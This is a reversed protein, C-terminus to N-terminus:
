GVIASPEPVPGALVTGKAWDLAMTVNGMNGFDCSLPVGACYGRVTFRHADTTKVQLPTTSDSNYTEVCCHNDRIRPWHRLAAPIAGADFIQIQPTAEPTSGCSWAFFQFGFLRYFGFVSLIPNACNYYDGPFVCFRYALAAFHAAIGGRKLFILM